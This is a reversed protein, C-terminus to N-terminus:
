RDTYLLVEDTAINTVCIHKVEFLTAPPLVVQVPSWKGTSLTNTLSFTKRRLGKEWKQHETVWAARAEPDRNKPLEPCDPGWAITIGAGKFSASTLNGVKM